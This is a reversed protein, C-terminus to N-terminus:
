SGAKPYALLIVDDDRLTMQRLDKLKNEWSGLPNPPLYFGNFPGMSKWVSKTLDEKKEQESISHNGAAVRELIQSPFLFFFELKDAIINESFSLFFSLFSFFPPFFSHFFSLCFHLRLFTIEKYHM